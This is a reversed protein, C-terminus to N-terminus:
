FLWMGASSRRKTAEEGRRMEVATFPDSNQAKAEILARGLAAYRKLTENIAKGNEQFKSLHRREAKKFQQGLFREHMELTEDTLVTM